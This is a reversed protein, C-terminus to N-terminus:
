RPVSWTTRISPRHLSHGFNRRWRSSRKRVYLLLDSFSLDALVQWSSCLTRLHEAEERSLDTITMIKDALTAM